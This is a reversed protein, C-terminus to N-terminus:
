GNHALICCSWFCSNGVGISVSRNYSVQYFYTLEDASQLTIYNKLRQLWVHSGPGDVHFKQLPSISKKFSDLENPDIAQACCINGEDRLSMSFITSGESFSFVTNDKLPVLAVINRKGDQNEVSEVFLLGYEKASEHHVLVVCCKIQGSVKSIGADLAYSSFEVSHCRITTMVTDSPTLGKRLGSNGQM